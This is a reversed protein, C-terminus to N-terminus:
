DRWQLSDLGCAASCQDEYTMDVPDPGRDSPGQASQSPNCAHCGTVTRTNGDYRIVAHRPFGAGCSCRGKYRAEIWRPAM